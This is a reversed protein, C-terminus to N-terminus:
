FPHGTLHEYRASRHRELISRAYMSEPDYGEISLTGRLLKDPADRPFGTRYYDAIVSLARPAIVPRWGPRPYNM